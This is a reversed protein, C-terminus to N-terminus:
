LRHRGMNPEGGTRNGGDQVVSGRGLVDGLGRTLANDSGSSLQIIPRVKEGARETLLPSKSDANDGVLNAVSVTGRNDGPDFVARTMLIIEEDGAHM